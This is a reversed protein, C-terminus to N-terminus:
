EHHAFLDDIRRRTLLSLCDRYNMNPQLRRFLHTAIIAMAALSKLAVHMTVRRILLAM